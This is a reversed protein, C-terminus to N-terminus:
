SSALVWVLQNGIFIGPAAYGTIGSPGKECRESFCSFLSVIFYCSWGLVGGVCVCM